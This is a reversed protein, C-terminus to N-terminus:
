ESPGTNRAEETKGGKREKPKEQPFNTETPESTGSLKQYYSQCTHKSSLCLDVGCLSFRQIKGTM